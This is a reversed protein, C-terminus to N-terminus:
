VITISLVQYQVYAALPIAIKSDEEPKAAQAKATAAQV